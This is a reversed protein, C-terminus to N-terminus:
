AQCSNLWRRLWRVPREKAPQSLVKNTSAAATACHCCRSCNVHINSTRFRHATSSATASLIKCGSNSLFNHLQCKQQFNLKGNIFAAAAAAEACIHDACCFQSYSLPVQITLGNAQKCHATLQLKSTQHQTTRSIKHQCRHDIWAFVFEQADEVHGGLICCCCCFCLLLLLPLLRLM